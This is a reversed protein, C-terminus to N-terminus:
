GLLDDLDDAAQGVAPAVIGAPGHIANLRVLHTSELAHGLQANAASYRERMPSSASMAMLMAALDRRASEVLVSMTAPDGRLVTEAGITELKLAM